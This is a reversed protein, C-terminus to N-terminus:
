LKIGIKIKKDYHGMQSGKNRKELTIGRLKARMGDLMRHWSEFGHSSSQLDEGKVM